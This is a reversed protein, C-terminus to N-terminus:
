ATRVLASTKGGISRMGSSVASGGSLIGCSTLKRWSAGFGSIGFGGM